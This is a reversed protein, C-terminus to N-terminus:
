PKDEREIHPDSPWEWGRPWTLERESGELRKFKWGAQRLRLAEREDLTFLHLRM